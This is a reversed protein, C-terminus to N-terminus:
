TLKKYKDVEPILSLTSGNDWTMHVNGFDDVYDVTGETGSPVGYADEMNVCLIRDGPKFIKRLSETKTYGM